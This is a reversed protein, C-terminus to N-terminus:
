FYQITRVKIYTPVSNKEEIAKIWNGKADFTYQYTYTNKGDYYETINDNVFVQKTEVLGNKSTYTHITKDSLYEYTDKRITGDTFTTTKDTLKGNDNYTFTTIYYVGDKNNCTEKIRLGKENYEYAVDYIRGWETYSSILRGQADYGWKKITIENDGFQNSTEKSYVMKGNEYKYETTATYEIEGDGDVEREWVINNSNDYKYMKKSALDGWVSYLLSATILGKENYTYTNKSHKIGDSFRYEKNSRILRKGQFTNIQITAIENPSWFEQTQTNRGNIDFMFCKNTPYKSKVVFDSDKAMKGTKLEGNVYTKFYIFEKFQKIKGKLNLKSPSITDLIIDNVDSARVISSNASLLFASLLFVFRNIKM